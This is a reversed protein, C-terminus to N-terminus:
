PCAGWSALVAALDSGGVIGDNDVDCDFQSKGGGWAALLAALDIGDVTNNGTVDGPCPDVECTDPVGNQNIDALQGSLIQGYDVLGDNNCDASWEIVAKTVSNQCVPVPDGDDDWRGQTSGGAQNGELTGWNQTANSQYCGSNNPEGSQWYSFALPEGTIWGWGGSPEAGGAAQFLGIWGSFSGSGLQLLNYAVTNEQQNSFTVLHAGRAQAHAAAAAFTWHVEGAPNAAIAYWHGNGGDEVRWQVASQAAAGTAVVGAGVVGAMLSRMPRMEHVGSGIPPSQNGRAVAARTPLSGNPAPDHLWVLCFTLSILGLIAAVRRAPRRPRLADAARRARADDIAPPSLTGVWDIRPLLHRTM